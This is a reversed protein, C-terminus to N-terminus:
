FTFITKGYEYKWTFRNQEIALCLEDLLDDTAVHSMNYIAGRRRLTIDTKLWYGLAKMGKVSGSADINPHASHRIGASFNDITVPMGKTPLSCLDGTELVRYHNQEPVFTVTKM